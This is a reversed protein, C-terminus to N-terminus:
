LNNLKIGKNTIFEFISNADNESIYFLYDIEHLLSAYGTCNDISTSYMEYYEDKPLFSKVWEKAEDLRM